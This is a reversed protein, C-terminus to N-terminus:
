HPPFYNKDNAPHKLYMDGIECSQSLQPFLACSPEFDVTWFNQHAYLFFIKITVSINKLDFNKTVTNQM